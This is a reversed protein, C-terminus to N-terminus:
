SRMFWQKWAQRYLAELEKVYAPADFLPSALMRGRLQGRLVSLKSLDSCLEIAIRLYEDETAAIFEELGLNKLISVGARGVPLEGALTIVPVGMWLADLTTTGGNCPFPDLAIDIRNYTEFYADLSQRPYPDVRSRPIGSIELREFISANFEFGPVFLALRSDPVGSLIRSWVSLVPDNVKALSNLSGFTIFRNRLAPL